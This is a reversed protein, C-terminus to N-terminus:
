SMGCFTEAGFDDESPAMNLDPLLFSNGTFDAKSADCFDSQSNDDQVTARTNLHSPVNGLPSGIRQHLQGAIAKELGDVSAKLHKSSHMEFDLKMRKLSENKARQEKFTARLTALEKRLYVREKLLSGEEEKLEAFTKKRRSGKTTSATTNTALENASTGPRSSEEFGDGTGSPSAGGSWSLPTTPSCRTSDGRKRQADCRAAKSRPMRVSWRLPFMVSSPPPSSSLSSKLPSAAQSQKLRVLLEVVLMDDTMAARMWEDKAM